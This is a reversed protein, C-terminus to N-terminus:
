PKGVKPTAGKQVEARLDYMGAHVPLDPRSPGLTATTIRWGILGILLTALLLTVAIKWPPLAGLDRPIMADAGM